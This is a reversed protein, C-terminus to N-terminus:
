EIPACPPADVPVVREDLRLVEGEDVLRCAARDEDLLEVVELISATGEEEESGRDVAFRDGVRVGNRDGLSLIARGSADELGIIRGAPEVRVEALAESLTGEGDSVTLKVDYAGPEQFVHAVREGEGSAGDGFAWEREVVSSSASEDTFVVTGGAYPVPPCYSVEAELPRDRLSLIIRTEGEGLLQPHQPQGREAAVFDPVRAAVYEYLEWVTVHYDGNLDAAGDLGELLFHTFVGQELQPSEFAEEGESSAALLLRGELRLDGFWDEDGGSGRWGPPLSRSLGGSYCSDFFILVHDSAIRDLFRGFEDDRLATDDKADARTDLLVFFEDVGDAEDTGDDAGQYGHGSFHILVLDDQSAVRRLWGLGERVNVLTAPAITLGAQGGLETRGDTLLRIREPPVGNELLWRVVAEADQRAYPLDEVEEYDSIGIVLAWVNAVPVVGPTRQVDLIEAHTDTAGMSDTVTLSVEYRGVEEYRHIPEPERSAHGDGLSWEWAVIPGDVGISRDIFRVPDYISPAVPSVGFAAQPPKPEEVLLVRMVADARGTEDVVRLTVPWTGVALPDISAYAEDTVLDFSGDSQFDWAFEVITGDPDYSSSADFRVRDGSRLPRSLGTGAESIPGWTFSAVPTTDAEFVVVPEVLTATDGDDDAVTLAVAYEGAEEYRHSIPNGIDVIGDGFDWWYEAVAGDEDSTASADFVVAEGAEPEYPGYSFAPVPPLNLRPLFWRATDLEVALRFRIGLTANVGVESEISVDALHLSARLAVDAVALDVIEAVLDIRSRRVCDTWALSLEGSTLDEIYAGLRGGLSWDETKWEAELSAKREPLMTLCASATLVGPPRPLEAAATVDLANLTLETARASLSFGGLGLDLLQHSVGTPREWEVEARVSTRGSAIEGRARVSSRSGAGDLVGEAGLTARLLPAPETGARLELEFLRIEGGARLWDSGSGLLSSEVSFTAGDWQRGARLRAEEVFPAASTLRVAGECELGWPGEGRRITVGVAAGSTRTPDVHAGITAGREGAGVCPSDLRLSYDEGDIDVFGPYASLDSTRRTTGVYDGSANGWVANYGFVAPSSVAPDQAVRLGAGGNLAVISDTVAITTGTALVGDGGNRAITAFRVEASRDSALEFGHGACEVVEAREVRCAASGSIRVGTGTTRGVTGGDIEIASSGRAEIGTGGGVFRSDRVVADSSGDLRIGGGANDAFRCDAVEIAAADLSDVGWGSHGEFTANELVARSTGDLVLGAVGNAEFRAGDVEVESDDALIGAGGNARLSGGLIHLVAGAECLIGHLDNDVIECDVLTPRASLGSIRIGEEQGGTIICDSITLAASELVVVPADLVSGMRELTVREIRGAVINRAHLVEEFGYGYRIITRDAGSGVVTVGNKFEIQEEYVGPDVLITDGSGAENMAAQVSRFAGLGDKSVILQRGIGVVGITLALILGCAFVRVIRQMLPNYPRRGRAAIRTEAAGGGLRVLQCMAGVDLNLAAGGGLRVLRRVAGVDLGLAAERALRDTSDDTPSGILAKKQMGNRGSTAEDISRM